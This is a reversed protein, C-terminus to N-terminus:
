CHGRPTAAAQVMTALLESPDDQRMLTEGILAAHARSDRIRRVDDATRLGSLYVAMCDDPIARVIREARASDMALTDLDRANVGIFDARAGRAAALEDETAVEVLPTIHLQKAYAVLDYLESQSVIRVIILAADAGRRHAEVLQRPDVIFEKALVPVEYGAGSLAQRITTLDEWSGGFFPGDCLVSVMAAGAEAYRIAREAPTLKGSLLGASPSKPKYEAILRLPDTERRFLARVLHQRPAHSSHPSRGNDHDQVVVANPDPAPPLSRVENRKSAIIADLVRTM